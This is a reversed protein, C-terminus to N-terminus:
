ARLRWFQGSFAQVHHRDNRFLEQLIWFQFATQRQATSESPKQSSLRMLCLGTQDSYAILM